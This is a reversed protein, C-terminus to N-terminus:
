LCNNTFDTGCKDVSAVPTCGKASVQAAAACLLLITATRM